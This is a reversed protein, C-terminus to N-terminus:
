LREYEPRAAQGSRLGPCHPSKSEVGDLILAERVANARESSLRLNYPPTGSDDTHGQIEVSAIEPHGRLADAAEELIGMSDPLIEASDNQFHVEKKLKLEKDTVVVNPKQPRKTVAIQASVDGRAKVEIEVVARLYGNAEAAITM